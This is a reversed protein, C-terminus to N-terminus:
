KVCLLRRGQFLAGYRDILKSRHAIFPPPIPLCTEDHIRDIMRVWGEALDADHGEAISCLPMFLKGFKQGCGSCILFHQALRPHLRWREVRTTQSWDTWLGLKKTWCAGKNPNHQLIADPMPADHRRPAPTDAKRRKDGDRMANSKGSRWDGILTRPKRQDHLSALYAASIKCEGAAERWVRASARRSGRKGSTPASKMSAHPWAESARLECCASRDVRGARNLWSAQRLLTKLAPPQPFV